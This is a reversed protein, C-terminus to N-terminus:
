TTPTFPFRRRGLQMKRMTQRLRAPLLTNAIVRDIDSEDICGIAPDALYQLINRLEQEAESLEVENRAVADLISDVTALIQIKIASSPLRDACQDLVAKIDLPASTPKASPKSSPRSM